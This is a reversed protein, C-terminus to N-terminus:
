WSHTCCEPAFAPLTVKCIRLEGESKVPVSVTGAAPVAPGRVCTGVLPLRAVPCFALKDKVPVTPCFSLKLMAFEVM